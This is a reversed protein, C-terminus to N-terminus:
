LRPTIVTTLTVSATRARKTEGRKTTWIAQVVVQSQNLAAPGVATVNVVGRASDLGSNNLHAQWQFYDGRATPQTTPPATAGASTDIGTGLGGNYNTVNLRNHHVREMMEAALNSARTLEKADVNGLIAISQMGASALLGIALIFMAILAELLTFGAEDKRIPKVRSSVRPGNLITERM